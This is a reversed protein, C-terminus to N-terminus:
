TKKAELLSRLQRFSRTLIIEEARFHIGFAQQIKLILEVHRLSDWGPLNEQDLGDLERASGLNMVKRFIQDLAETNGSTM